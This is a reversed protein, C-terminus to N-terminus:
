KKKFFTKVPKQPDNPDYLNGQEIKGDKDFTGKFYYGAQAEYKEGSTSVLTTPTNYTVTQEGSQNPNTTNGTKGTFMEVEKDITIGAGEQALEAIIKNIGLYIEKDTANFKHYQGKMDELMEKVRNVKRGDILGKQTLFGGDKLATEIAARNNVITAGKQVIGVGFMIVNLAEIIKQLEPDKVKDFIVAINAVCLSLETLAILRATVSAATKFVTAVTGGPIFLIAIQVTANVYNGIDRDLKKDNYYKFFIAPVIAIKSPDVGSLATQVLPIKNDLYVIIPDFPNLTALETTAKQSISIMGENSARVSHRAQTEKEILRITINGTGKNYEGSHQRKGFSFLTAFDRSKVDFTTPTIFYIEEPMTSIKESYATHFMKLLIHFFGTYNKGDKWVLSANVLSADDMEGILCRLYYNSDTQLEDFFLPYINENWASMIRLIAKESNEKLKKQTIIKKFLDFYYKENNVHEKLATECVKNVFDVLKQIDSVANTALSDLTKVDRTCGATKEYEEPNPKGSPTQPFEAYYVWGRNHLQVDETSHEWFTKALKPLNWTTECHAFNDTQQYEDTIVMDGTISYPYEDRKLANIISENVKLITEHSGDGNFEPRVFKLNEWKGEPNHYVSYKEPFLTWICNNEDHYFEAQIHTLTGKAPKNYQNRNLHKLLKKDTNLIVEGKIVGLYNNHIEVVAIVEGNEKKIYFYEFKDIHQIDSTISGNSSVKKICCYKNEKEIDFADKSTTVKNLMDWYVPQEYLIGIQRGLFEDDKWLGKQEKGDKYTLTGEGNFKNNNNTFEGTYQKRGPNNSYTYTGNYFRGNVIEGTFTDGARTKHYQNFVITAQGNQRNNKYGGVYKYNENEYTAKEDECQGNNWMGDYYAKSKSYDYRGKGHFKDEKFSGTYKDGAYQGSNFLFTGRGNQCNGEICKGNNYNIEQSLLICPFLYILLVVTQKMNLGNKKITEMKMIVETRVKTM